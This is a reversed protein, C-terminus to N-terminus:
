HILSFKWFPTIKIRIGGKVFEEEQDFTLVLGERLNLRKCCLALGSLERERNNSSLEYSVQYAFLRGNENIVFDCEKEEEFYFIKETRKRLELFIVNELLRGKDESSVRKALGVDVLYVKAPNRIRKYASEAFKRVEFIVMSQLFHKYYNFLSDKSFPLRDKYQKYFSTLSFKQSCSSFLGETLLDLLSINSIKFREVLDKFFISGLYEKLIKTKEFENKAFVIEPFGGWKLYDKFHNKLIVRKSSYIINKDINVSKATLYERFSFPAIEISWARGRLSTHIELPMIASSSGTVMVNTNEKEAQRRCFKEWGKINQIEDFLFIKRKNILQPNLELFAEKLLELDGVGFDILREDEFDVYLCEREHEKFFDYLIFTKGSRRVGWLVNVKHLRETFNIGERKVIDRVENLIFSKNTSIIEKLLEKSFM